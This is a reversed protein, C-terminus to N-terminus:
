NAEFDVVLSCRTKVKGLGGTKEGMMGAYLDPLTGASAADSERVSVIKGLTLDSLKALTRAKAKAKGIADSWAATEAAQSDALSAIVASSMGFSVTYPSTPSGLTAGCGVLQEEIRKIVEAVEALDGSEHPVVITMSEKFTFAANADPEGGGVMMEAVMDMQNGASPSLSKGLSVIALDPFDMPNLADVLKSRSSKFKEGAEVITKGSHSLTATIELQDADSEFVGTAIVSIKGRRADISESSQQAYSGTASAFMSAIVVAFLFPILFLNKHVSM